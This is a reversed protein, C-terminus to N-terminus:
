AEEPGEPKEGEPQSMRDRLRRKVKFSWLGLGLVALNLLTFSPLDVAVMNTLYFLDAVIVIVMFVNAALLLRRTWPTLAEM